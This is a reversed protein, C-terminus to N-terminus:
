IQGYRQACYHLIRISKVVHPESHLAANNLVAFWPSRSGIVGLASANANMPPTPCEPYTMVLAPDIRPRGRLIVFMVALRVYTQLLQAKHMPNHVAGLVVHLFLSGTLFHMLFFNMRPKGGAKGTAGLPLTAQWLCEETKKAFQEPEAGDGVDFTWRSYIKRIETAREPNSRMWAALRQPNISEAEYPMPTLRESEYVERLLALMSTSLGTNIEPVAAPMDMVSTGAPATVAPQGLGRCWTLFSSQYSPTAVLKGQAVVFDHGFEIGFGAQIIPHMLGGVFRVLMMSGNGNAEPSFVYRELVASVGHAAVQSSFFDLYDPYASAEGLRSTWNAETIKNPGLVTTGNPRLARQIGADKDFILQIWKAPAGIDHLSLKFTSAPTAGPICLIGHKLPQLPLS